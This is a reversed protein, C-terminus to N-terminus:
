DAAKTKDANEVQWDSIQNVLGMVAQFKRKCNNNRSAPNIHPNLTLWLLIVQIASADQARIIFLPEDPAAKVFCPNRYKPPATLKAQAAQWVSWAFRKDSEYNPNDSTLGYLSYHAEFLDAQEARHDDTGVISEIDAALAFYGDARASLAYARAASIAHPDHGATLDLVLYRCTAHKGLPASSGDTREVRYKNTYLGDAKNGM